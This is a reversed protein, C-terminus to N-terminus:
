RNARRAAKARKAAARRRDTLIWAPTKTMSVVVPEDFMVVGTEGGRTVKVAGYQRAHKSMGPIRPTKM